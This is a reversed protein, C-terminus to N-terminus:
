PASIKQCPHYVLVGGNTRGDEGWSNLPLLGDNFTMWCMRHTRHANRKKSMGYVLDEMSLHVVCTM